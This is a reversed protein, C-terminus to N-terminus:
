GCHIDKFTQANHRHMDHAKSSQCDTMWLTLCTRGCQLVKWSYIGKRKETDLMEKRLEITCLDGDWTM